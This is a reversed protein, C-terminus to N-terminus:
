SMPKISKLLQHHAVCDAQVNSNMDTFSGFHNRLGYQGFIDFTFPILVLMFCLASMVVRRRRMEAIKRTNLKFCVTDQMFKKTRAPEYGDKVALHYNRITLCMQGLAM